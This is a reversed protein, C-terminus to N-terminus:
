KVPLVRMGLSKGGVRDLVQVTTQRPKFGDPLPLNGRLIQHSGISLSVPKLSVSTDAGRAGDGAVVLQMVGTMPKASARDRTLVVDYALSGGKASFRAARVEVSGGRPDPPLSTVASAVDDRLQEIHERNAALADTASKSDALATALRKSTDDLQRKLRAREADASEFSARLEAGAAASLRPPLYREQVVIVGAAGIATGVLLLVLWRPVRTRSRRSGYPDFTVERSKGFM